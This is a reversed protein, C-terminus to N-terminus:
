PRYDSGKFQEELIHLAFVMAEIDEKTTYVGMSIRTTGYIGMLTMLHIACHTNGRVCVGLHGLVYAPQTNGIGFNTFSILGLGGDEGSHDGLISVSDLTSLALLAYRSMTRSHKEVNEMGLDELYEAAEGMGIAQEIPPTGLEFCYPVRRHYFGKLSVESIEGGGVAFPRMQPHMREAAYLVGIGTPGYIKHGSFVLFDAELDKVDIKIHQVSQAADVLVVAGAEHALRTMERIPNLLGLVNSIQAVCVLKPKEKLLARYEGRDLRGDHDLPIYKLEVGIYERLFQWPMLNSHHESVAVLVTDGKNLNFLGWSQAVLNCGASTNGTFIIEHPEAKIFRAVKERAADFGATAKLSLSYYGRWINSHYGHIFESGAEIVRGPRQATAASDLYVLADEHELSSLLPFEKRNRGAWEDWYALDAVPQKALLEDIKELCSRAKSVLESPQQRKRKGARIEQASPKARAKRVARLAPMELNKVFQHYGEPFLVPGFAKDEGLLVSEAEYLHIPRTTGATSRTHFNKETVKELLSQSLLVPPGGRWEAYATFIEGQPKAEFAARMKKIHRAQLQIQDGALLLCCDGASRQLLEKFLTVQGLSYHKIEFKGSTANIQEVRIRDYPIIRIDLGQLAAAIEQAYGEVLVYIKTIGAGQITQIVRRVIIEGDYVQLPRPPPALRDRGGTKRHFAEIEAETMGQAEEPGLEVVVPIKRVDTALVIATTDNIGAPEITELDRQYKLYSTQPIYSTEKLM